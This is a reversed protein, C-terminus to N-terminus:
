YLFLDQCSVVNEPGFSVSEEVSGVLVEQPEKSRPVSDSNMEFARLKVRTREDIGTGSEATLITRKASLGTMM